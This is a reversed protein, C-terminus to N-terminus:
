AYMWLVDIKAGDTDSTLGIENMPVANQDSSRFTSSQGATLQIGFNSSSVSNNGVFIKAAANGPDGLLSLERCAGRANPFSAKILTWLNYVTAHTTLTLTVAPM